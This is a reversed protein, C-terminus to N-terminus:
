APGTMSRSITRTIVCVVIMRLSAKTISEASCGRARTKTAPAVTAMVMASAVSRVHFNPM